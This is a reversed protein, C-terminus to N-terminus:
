RTTLLDLVSHQLRGALLLALGSMALTLLVPLLLPPLKGLV